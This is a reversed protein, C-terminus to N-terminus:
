IALEVAMVRFQYLGILDVGGVRVPGPAPFSADPHGNGRFTFPGLLGDVFFPFPFLLEVFAVM